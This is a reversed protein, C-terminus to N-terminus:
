DKLLKVEGIVYAQGSDRELECPDVNLITPAYGEKTFEILLREPIDPDGGYTIFMFFNKNFKYTYLADFKGDEGATHKPHLIISLMEDNDAIDIYTGPLPKGTGREVVTGRVRMKTQRDVYGCSSVILALCAFSITTIRGMDIVILACM